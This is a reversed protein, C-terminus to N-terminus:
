HLTQNIEELKLMLATNYAGGGCIYIENVLHPLNKIENSITNATFALLTAQVNLVHAYLTPSQQIIDPTLTKQSTSLAAKAKQWDGLHHYALALNSLTTAYLM